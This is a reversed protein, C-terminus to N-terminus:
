SHTFSYNQERALEGGGDGAAAAVIEKRRLYSFFRIFNFSIDFYVGSIIAIFM